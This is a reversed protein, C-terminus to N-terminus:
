PVQFPSRSVAFKLPLSERASKVSRGAFYGPKGAGDGGQAASFCNCDGNFHTFYFTRFPAGWESVGTEAEGDMRVTHGLFRQV